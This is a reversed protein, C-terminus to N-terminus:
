RRLQTLSCVQGTSAPGGSRVSRSSDDGIMRPRGGAARGPSCSRGTRRCQLVVLDEGQARQHQGVVSFASARAVSGRAAPSRRRPRRAHRRLDQFPQVPRDADSRGADRGPVPSMGTEAGVAGRVDRRRLRSGHHSGPASVETSGSVSETSTPPTGTALPLRPAHQPGAAAASAWSRTGRGAHAGGHLRHTCSTSPPPARRRTPRRRGPRPAAARARGTGSSGGRRARPAPSRHVPHQDGADAVDEQGVVPEADLHRPPQRSRPPSGPRPRPRRSRCGRRAGPRGAARRSRPRQHQDVRHVAAPRGAGDVRELVIEVAGGGSAAPARRARCPGRVRHEAQEVLEGRRDADVRGTPRTSTTPQSGATAPRRSRGTRAPRPRRRGAACATASM